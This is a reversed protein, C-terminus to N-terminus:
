VAAALDWTRANIVRWRNPYDSDGEPLTWVCHMHDPLVVWADIGFSREAMVQRVPRLLAEVERGPVGLGPRHGLRGALGAVGHHFLM